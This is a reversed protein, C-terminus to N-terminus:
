SGISIWDSSVLWQNKVSVVHLQIKGEFMVAAYDSNLHMSEITGLYERDKLRETGKLTFLSIKTM